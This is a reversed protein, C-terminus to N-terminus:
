KFLNDYDEKNVPWLLQLMATSDEVEKTEWLQILKPVTWDELKRNQGKRGRQLQDVLAAKVDQKLKLTSARKRAKALKELPAINIKENQLLGLAHSLTAKTDPRPKGDLLVLKGGVRLKQGEGEYNEARWHPVIFVFYFQTIGHRKASDVLTQWHAKSISHDKATTIQFAYLADKLVMFCDVAGLTRSVPLYMKGEEFVVQDLGGFAEYNYNNPLNLTHKSDEGITHLAFSTGGQLSPLWFKLVFAEYMWGSGAGVNRDGGSFFQAMSELRIKSNEELVVCAIYPSAYMAYAEHDTNSLFKDEGTVGWVLLRSSVSSSCNSTTPSKIIHELDRVVGPTRIRGKVVQAARKVQDVLTPNSLKDLVAKLMSASSCVQKHLEKQTDQNEDPDPVFALAKEEETKENADVVTTVLESAETMEAVEATKVERNDGDTVVEAENAQKDDETTIGKAGGKKSGQVHFHSLCYRPSPGFLTVLLKLDNTTVSCGFSQHLQRLEELEMPEWVPMIYIPERAKDIDTTFLTKWRESDPSAFMVVKVDANSGSFDYLPKNGKIRYDVLNWCQHGGILTLLEYGRSALNGRDAHALWVSKVGVVKGDNIKPVILEARVADRAILGQDCELLVACGKQILFSAFADVFWSKGIGPMGTVVAANAVEEFLRESLKEYVDRMVMVASTTHDALRNWPPLKAVPEGSQLSPDGKCFTTGIELLRKKRPEEDGADIERARTLSATSLIGM